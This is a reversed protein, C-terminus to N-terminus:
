SRDPTAPAAHAPWVVRDPLVKAVRAALEAALLGYAHTGPPGTRVVSLQAGELQRQESDSLRLCPLQGDALEFHWIVQGRQGAPRVRNALIDECAAREASESRERDLAAQRARAAEREAARLRTLEQERAANEQELGERGVAKRHVREEHALRKADKKSLLKAKKLQDRLDGMPPM